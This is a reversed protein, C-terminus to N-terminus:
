ERRDSIMQKLKIRAHRLNSRVTTLRQGTLDAIEEDSLGDVKCAVVQRQREPLEALLGLVYQVEADFVVKEDSAPAPSDDYQARLRDQRKRAAEAKRVSDISARRAVTRVFATPSALPWKQGAIIMAHQTADAAEEPSAGMAVLWWTVRVFNERVFTDFDQSLHPHTAETKEFM